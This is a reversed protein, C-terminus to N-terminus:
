MEFCIDIWPQISTDWDFDALDFTIIVASMSEFYGKIFPSNQPNGTIDWVKNTFNNGVIITKTLNVSSCIKERALIYNSFRTLGISSIESYPQPFDRISTHRKGGKKRNIQVAKLKSKEWM